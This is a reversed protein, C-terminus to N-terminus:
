GAAMRLALKEFTQRTKRDGEPMARECSLCGESQVVFALVSPGEGGVETVMTRPMTSVILIVVARCRERCWEGARAM